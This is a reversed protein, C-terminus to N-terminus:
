RCGSSAARRGNGITAASPRAAPVSPQCRCGAIERDAGRLAARSVAASTRNRGVAGGAHKGDGRTCSPGPSWRARDLERLLGTYRRGARVQRPLGIGKPTALGVRRGTAFRPGALPRGRDLRDSWVPKDGAGGAMREGTVWGRSSPRGAARAQAPIDGAVTKVASAHRSRPRDRCRSLRGISGKRLDWGRMSAWRRAQLNAAGLRELGFAAGEEAPMRCVSARKSQM